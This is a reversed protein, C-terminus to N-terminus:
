YHTNMIFREETEKDTFYVYCGKMGRTMLTRYTNKIIADVLIEGDIWLKQIRSKYWKISADSKARFQPQTVVKGNRIVFDDWVIVWVYDMELWQCTHICWIESVSEPKIIWLNWDTALNWRMGFNYEPMVIDYSTPNKKSVWNRCYWAVLRAKNNIKNKEYIMDRLQNPDSVIQFDYKVDELTTNATERIQLTNDLWSLYWDSGNCRFQSSLEFKHIKAGYHRARKIIEETEGIDHLTVKQDEDIFFITCKAARILEKIQNEWKNKYIWSKENLRHAEDVILAGFMNPMCDVFSWSSSFMNSFETKKLTGTLKSEYVTRPAANKTVYKTVLWAKTLAVLLNIAVVSKWTGPWWEVILVNKNEQSSLKSLSIANEYVVKQEDIMVFEQNNNILWVMSDALAKSPRIEWKEIRFMTQTSDWYKIFKKIFEQLKQYDDKLFVPAKDIYEQYRENKLVWDDKTYNHLYACPRLQINETYVTMNFWQLLAAYSWAQYSPHPTEKTWHQFRTVVVGDKDTLEAESRQKLEIIVINEKDEESRWTIIFDIRKSTQPIHYEIAIWCDGPIADDGLITNMYLLSNKRSMKENPAVKRWLVDLFKQEIIDDIKFIENSLQKKTWTYILTM